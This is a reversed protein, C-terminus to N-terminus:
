EKVWRTLVKGESKIPVKCMRVGSAKDTLVNDMVEELACEVIEGHDEGCEILLEDYITMLPWSDVGVEKLNHLHEDIEAMALRMIDASFGQIGHNCGERIGAQQVYGLYSRAQPIRRVRGMRTCAHSYRRIYEEQSDLYRKAGPYVGFWKEIFGDCWAETMWEPLPVGATAYTVAMLDLLGSGTIMYGIAFNVNKAPARHLIKDVKKPDTIGFTGMATEIHIDGDKLYVSIMREDGSRDALLRLEIQSFDRQAIVMGKPAVFTARIAQGLKTRTPINALNDNKCATRGTATRTTLLTTHTRWEDEWHHRGCVPCDSGHPHFRAKRKATRLYTGLLKSNERYELILPVVPHERKLQELTKKGTSLRTGSKTKKVQVSGKDLNLITYLLKALQDPSEVNFGSDNEIGETSESSIRDETNSSASDEDGYGGSLEIFKDLHEPPIESAIDKRLEKMRNSMQSELESIRDLDRRMGFRMMRGLIPISMIDLKQINSPDPRDVLQVGGYLAM